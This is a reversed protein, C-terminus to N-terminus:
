GAGRRSPPSRTSGSNDVYVIYDFTGSQLCRTYFDFAVKYDSLRDQSDRRQLQSTNAAPAITSTILAINNGM